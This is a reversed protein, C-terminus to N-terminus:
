DSSGVLPPTCLGNENHVELVLIWNKIHGMASNIRKGANMIRHLSDVLNVVGSVFNTEIETSTCSDRM